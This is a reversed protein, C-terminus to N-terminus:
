GNRMMLMVRLVDEPSIHVSPPVNLSVSSLVAINRERSGNTTVNAPPFTRDAPPVPVVGLAVSGTKCSMRFHPDICIVIESGHSNSRTM